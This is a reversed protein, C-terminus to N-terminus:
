AAAKEAKGVYLMLAAAVYLVAGLLLVIQFGFAVAVAAAVVSGLVAAMANLGWLTPVAGPLVRGAMRLGSPFPIGILLGLPLTLALVAIIRVTLDTQLLAGSILPYLLAHTVLLAALVILATIVPRRLSGQMRSSILSGVGAGFLLGELTIVLALTPNGLLLYFRQVLPVMVLMYAAGLLAFYFALTGIHLRGTRWHVKATAALYILVALATLVLLLTLSEPLGWRLQYFFPQDDTTPSLNFEGNRAFTYIDANGKVLDRLPLEFATPVYMMQLGLSDARKVNASLEDSNMYNRTVLLVSTAAQPDDAHAQYLLVRDLAQRMDLGERELAAIATLLIRSGEFGNHTVIGIRGGPKLHKWYSRMAEETFVYSEALPSGEHGAAQSYVLNMYILDYQTDTQEVYSRGDSVVTNVGPRDLINGNFAAYKRTLDVVGQNLEVATINTNGGLLSLVVDKGAGAGLILTDTAPAMAFPLYDPDTRLDNVKTLDGDFRIMYSGAGGDTFLLKTNPDATEVLDLRAFPGWVTQAIHAQQNPDQLVRLMTKDPPAGSIVAADFGPYDFLQGVLILLAVFLAAAGSWRLAQKDGSTYTLFLAPLVALIALWLIATFVGSWVILLLVAVTGVAAGLLDSAYLRASEAPRAAFLTSLLLGVLIFPPLALIAQVFVAGAWTLLSFILSDLALALALAILIRGPRVLETNKHALLWAGWAAGLGLGCIALSTAVFVYHYEFLLSFLRTLLVEFALSVGSAIAIAMAALPLQIAASKELSGMKAATLAAGSSLTPTPVM